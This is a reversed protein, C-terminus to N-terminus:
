CTRSQSRVMMPSALLRPLADPDDSARQRGPAWPQVVDLGVPDMGPALVGLWIAQQWGAFQGLPDARLEIAQVILM